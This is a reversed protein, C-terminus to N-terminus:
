ITSSFCQFVCICHPSSSLIRIFYTYDSVTRTFQSAGRIRGDQGVPLDKLMDKGVTESSINIYLKLNSKPEPKQECPPEKSCLAHVEYGVCPSRVVRSEKEIEDPVGQLRLPICCGLHHLLTQM